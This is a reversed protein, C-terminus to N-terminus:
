LAMWPFEYKHDEFYQILLASRCAFEGSFPCDNCRDLNCRVYALNEFVFYTTIWDLSLIIPSEQIDDYGHEIKITM